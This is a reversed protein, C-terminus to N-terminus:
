ARWSQRNNLRSLLQGYVPRATLGLMYGAQLMLFPLAMTMASAAFSQGAALSSVVFAGAAFFSIPLLALVNFYLGLYIGAGFAIMPLM